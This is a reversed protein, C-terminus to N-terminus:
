KKQETIAEINNKYITLIHNNNHEKILEINNENNKVISNYYYLSNTFKKHEKYNNYAEEDLKLKELRKQQQELEYNLRYRYKVKNQKLKEYATKNKLRQLEKLRKYNEVIESDSLYEFKSVM